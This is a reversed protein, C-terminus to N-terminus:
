FVDNDRIMNRLMQIQAHPLSCKRKIPPISCFVSKGCCELAIVMAMSESGVVIDHNILDDMLLKNNSIQVLPGYKDVAWNFNGILESPHLRVTIQKIKPGLRELNDMLYSFSDQDTYGLYNSDGFQRTMGEAINDSVFLLSSCRTSLGYESKILWEQRLDMLYPNDVLSVIISPFIKKAISFANYDGVWIQDPLISEGNRCYRKDYNVWHDLFSIVKKHKRKAILSVELELDSQWSTGCLVWDTSKVLEDPEVIQLDVIKRRFIDIAPGQLTFLADVKNQRVFSSIIEAGGADHCAIGVKSMTKM